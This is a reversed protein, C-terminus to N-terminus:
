VYDPFRFTFTTSLLNQEFNQREHIVKFGKVIYSITRTFFKSLPLLTVKLLIEFVIPMNLIIKISDITRVVAVRPVEFYHRNNV